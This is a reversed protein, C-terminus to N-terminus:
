LALYSDDAERSLYSTGALSGEKGEEQGWGGM